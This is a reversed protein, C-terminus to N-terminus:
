SAQIIKQLHELMLNRLARKFPLGLRHPFVLSTDVVTSHILKLAILDSELSHGMLITKESIMSLMVAQVGRIDTTVGKMDAATIGSFRTNYDIIDTDPKVLTEYVVECDEGVVTVRALELGANTYVMECDLAYVKFNKESTSSAPMTKMYGSRNDTKNREHVHCPAVQCGKTGAKENCCVYRSEIVGVVKLAEGGSNEEKYFQVKSSGDEAPRPFGNERLQEETTIYPKLRKYLEKGEIKATIAVSSAKSRNLTFSQRAANPGGLTAAHSQIAHNGLSGPTSNMKPKKSTSPLFQAAENRIRKITNVAVGLYINKNNAKQYVAKEDEEGKTFAESEPRFKLHEDIILNLYRQRVNTPVKSGFDASILPRQLNSFTPEHAKRKESKSATGAITVTKPVATTSPPTKKTYFTNPSMTFSGDKGKGTDTAGCTSGSQRPLTKNGPFLSKGPTHAQRQKQGTPPLLSPSLGIGSALSTSTSTSSSTGLSGNYRSLSSAAPLGGGTLTIGGTAPKEKGGLLSPLESERGERTAARLLARKQMEKIRNYMVQAPSLKTKRPVLPKHPRSVKESNKHAMRKKGVSVLLNESPEFSELDPAEQTKRKGPDVKILGKKLKEAMQRETEQFIRLCEDFTDSDSMLDVEDQLSFETDSDPSMGRDNTDDDDDRHVDNDDSDSISYVPPPPPEIIEIDSDSADAGGGGGNSNIISPKEERSHRRKSAKSSSDKKTVSVNSSKSKSISSKSSSTTTDKAKKESKVNNIESAKLRCHKNYEDLKTSDVASLSRPKKDELSKIVTPKKDHISKNESSSSRGGNRVERDSCISSKRRSHKHKEHKSSNSSPLSISRSVFHSKLSPAQSSSSHKNEKESSSGHPKELGPQLSSQPLYKEPKQRSKFNSDKSSHNSDRNKDGKSSSTSSSSPKADVHSSSSKSSPRHNQSSSSKHNQSSSSKHSQSSSSKHNQSSSSKHNQSSSSKHSQSSSSKHSQSSSSKHSHSSSSLDKRSVSRSSSQSQKSSSSPSSKLHTSSTSKSHSSSSVSKTSSSRHLDRSKDSKEPVREPKSSKCCVSEKGSSVSLDKDNAKSKTQDSSSAKTHKETFFSTPTLLESYSTEQVKGPAEAPTEWSVDEDSDTLDDETAPSASINNSFKVVEAHKNELEPEVEKSIKDGSATKKAENDEDSSFAAEEEDSSQPKDHVKFNKVPDYEIVRGSTKVLEDAVGKPTPTYSPTGDDGPLSEFSKPTPVYSPLSKRTKPLGSIQPLSKVSVASENESEPLTPDTSSFSPISLNENLDIQGNSGKNAQAIEKSTDCTEVFGGPLRAGSVSFNCSGSSHEAFTNSGVAISVPDATKLLGGVGSQFSTTGSTSYSPGNKPKGREERRNEGGPNSTAFTGLQGEHHTWCVWTEAEYILAVTKRRCRGNIIIIKTTKRKQGNSRSFDGTARCKSRRYRRKFRRPIPGHM